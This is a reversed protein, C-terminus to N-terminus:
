AAVWLDGTLDDESMRGTNWRAMDIKLTANVRGALREAEEKTFFHFERPGEHYAVRGGGLFAEVVFCGPQVELPHAVVIKTM